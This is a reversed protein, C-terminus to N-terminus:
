SYTRLFAWFRCIDVDDVCNSTDVDISQDSLDILNLFTVFARSHLQSNFKDAWSNLLTDIATWGKVRAAGNM